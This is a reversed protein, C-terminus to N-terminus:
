KLNLKTLGLMQDYAKKLFYGDTGFALFDFGTEILTNLGQVDRAFSGAIKNNKHIVEICKKQYAQIEPHDLEGARGIAQSIDYVGTYIMDLGEVQAIEEINQLGEVGEVLVGVLTEQNCRQLSETLNEHTFGHNATYPGLGRKGLPPYKAARVVRMADEKTKIHPVMVALSGTELVRLILQEDLREVRPIPQINVSFAARVMNEVSEMSCSAHEMDLIVFDLSTTGLIEISIPSNLMSWTGIGKQGARFKKLLTNQRM